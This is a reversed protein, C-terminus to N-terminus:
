YSNYGFLLFVSMSGILELNILIDFILCIKFKWYFVVINIKLLLCFRLLVDCLIFLIGLRRVLCNVIILLYLKIVFRVM